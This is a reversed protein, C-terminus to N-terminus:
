EQEAERRRDAILSDALSDDGPILQRVMEQARRMAAAASLLSLRGDEVLAVVREDGAIGARRLLDPGLHLGGDPSTQLRAMGSKDLAEVRPAEEGSLPVGVQYPPGSSVAAMGGPERGKDAELVNRVHQYRKGLFRAIDARSLGARDLARIKGSVTPEADVLRRLHDPKHM